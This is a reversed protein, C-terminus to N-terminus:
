KLFHREAIRDLAGVAGLRKTFAQKLKKVAAAGVLNTELPPDVRDASQGPTLRAHERPRKERHETEDRLWVM